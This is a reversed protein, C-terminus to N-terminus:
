EWRGGSAPNYDAVPCQLMQCHTSKDRFPGCMQSSPPLLFTLLRRHLQTERTARSNAINVAAFFLWLRVSRQDCMEMIIEGQGQIM